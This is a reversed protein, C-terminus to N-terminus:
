MREEDEERGLRMYERATMGTERRFVTSFYNM